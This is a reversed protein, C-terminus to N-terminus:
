NIEEIRRVGSLGVLIMKGDGSETVASYVAGDVNIASCTEQELDVILPKSSAIALRGDGLVTAGFLPTEVLTEIKRWSQGGDDSRFANGRLGLAYVQENNNNVVISFFSGQYPSEINSWHIGGNTSRYLTGAEGAIFLGSKGSAIANLHFGDINNLRQGWPVWSSGGDETRFMVGYSGIVYGTLEDAFWVDMFSKYSNKEIAIQTDELFYLLNELEYSVEEKQSEDVSELEAQKYVIQKEYYNVLLENVKKGDLQLQWNEGGDISHLVVGDHGTVWGKDRTPFYVSTLTVSVPVPAQLWTKGNDDSFLVHGREGVTVLRDGARTVDLLMSGSARESMVAPLTLLNNESRVPSIWVLIVAMLMAMKSVAILGQRYGIWKKTVQMMSGKDFGLAFLPQGPCAGREVDESFL